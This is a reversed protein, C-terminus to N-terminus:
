IVKLNSPRQSGYSKYGSVARVDPKKPTQGHVAVDLLQGILGLADHVDDHRGAPFALLEAELAAREKLETSYWLGKTAIMARMPQARTGKDARSAFQLRETYARKTGAARELWPGVGSLIQGSEEAWSMPKWFGSWTAGPMSGSTPHRANGGCTSSGPGIPRILDSWLMSRTTAVIRVSPM